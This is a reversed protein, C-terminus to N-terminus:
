YNRGPNGYRYMPQKPPNTVWAPPKPGYPPNKVWDPVRPQVWQPAPMPQPRNRNFNQAPMPQQPPRQVWQPAPMPQPRNRNFNQAPMPQQQPRQAWQPAPMPQPRNRNFNQAPMPQQSPRQTLQPAEVKNTNQNNKSSDIQSRYPGSPAPPMATQEKTKIEDSDSALVYSTNVLAILIILYQNLRSNKKMM